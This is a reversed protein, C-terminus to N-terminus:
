RRLRYLKCYLMSGAFLALMPSSHLFNVSLLALGDDCTNFPYAAIGSLFSMNFPLLLFTVHFNSDNADIKM